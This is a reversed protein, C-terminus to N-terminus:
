HLSISHPLFAKKLAANAPPILCYLRYVSIRGYLIFLFICIGAIQQGWLVRCPAPLFSISILLLIWEKPRHTARAYLGQNLIAAWQPGNRKARMNFVAHFICRRRCEAASSEGGLTSVRILLWICHPYQFLPVAYCGQSVPSCCGICAPLEPVCLDNAFFRWTLFVKSKPPPPSRHGWLFCILFICAAIKGAVWPFFFLLFSVWERQRQGKKNCPYESIRAM